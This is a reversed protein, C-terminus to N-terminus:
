LITSTALESPGAVAFSRPGYRVTRNEHTSRHPRWARVAFCLRRRHLNRSHDSLATSIGDFPSQIATSDYNYGDGDHLPYSQSAVAVGRTLSYPKLVADVCDIVKVQVSLRVM